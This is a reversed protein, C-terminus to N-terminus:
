RLGRDLGRLLPLIVDITPVDVGYERAFAQTQGLLTEAELRRGLLVDQQM